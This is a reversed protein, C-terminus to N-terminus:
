HTMSVVASEGQLQGSGTGFSPRHLASICPRTSRSDVSAVEILLVVVKVADEAAPKCLSPDRQEQETYPLFHVVRNLWCAEFGAGAAPGARLEYLVDFSRLGGLIDVQQKRASM